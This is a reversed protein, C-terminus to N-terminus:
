DVEKLLRYRVDVVWDRAYDLEKKVARGRTLRLAEDICGVATTLSDALKKVQKPKM